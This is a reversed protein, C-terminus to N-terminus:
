NGCGGERYDQGYVRFLEPDVVLSFRKILCSSFFDRMSEVNVLLEEDVGFQLRDSTLNKLVGLDHHSLLSGFVEPRPTFVFIKGEPELKDVIARILATGSFGLVVVLGHYDIRGQQELQRLVVGSAAEAKKANNLKVYGRDTHIRLGKDEEGALETRILTKSISPLMAKLACHGGPSMFQELLELNRDLTQNYEDM